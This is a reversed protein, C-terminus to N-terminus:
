YNFLEQQCVGESPDLWRYSISKIVFSSQQKSLSELEWENLMKWGNKVVLRLQYSMSYEHPFEVRERHSSM